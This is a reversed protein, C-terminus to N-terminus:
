SFTNSKILHKKHCTFYHTKKKTRNMHYTVNTSKRLISTGKCEQSLYRKTTYLDGKRHYQMQNALIKHPNKM